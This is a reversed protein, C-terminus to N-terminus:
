RAEAWHLTSKEGRRSVYAMGLAPRYTPLYSVADPVCFTDASAVLRVCLEGRQTALSFRDLASVAVGDWILRASPVYAASFMSEVSKGGAELYNIQGLDASVSSAILIGSSGRSTEYAVDDVLRQPKSGTAVVYLSRRGNAEVLARMPSPLPSFDRVDRLIDTQGSPAWAVLRSEETGPDLWLLVKGGNVSSLSRYTRARGVEIAPEDFPGIYRRYIQFVNGNAELVSRPGSADAELAAFYSLVWNPHEKTGFDRVSLPRKADSPLTKRKKVGVLNSIWEGGDCRTAYELAVLAAPADMWEVNCASKEVFIEESAVTLLVSLGRKDVYAVRENAGDVRMSIVGDGVEAVVELKRNRVTVSGRELTYLYQTTQVADHVWEAIVTEVRRKPDLRILRHEETLVVISTPLYSSARGIVIGNKYPGLREQCRDDVVHLESLSPDIRVQFPLYRDVAEYTSPGLPDDLPAAKGVTCHTKGDVGYIRLTDRRDRTVVASPLGKEGLLEIPTEDQAIAGLAKGPFYVNRPATDALQEFGQTECGVVGGIVIGGMSAM